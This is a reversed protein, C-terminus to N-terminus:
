NPGRVFVGVKCSNPNLPTCFMVNWTFLCVAAWFLPFVFNLYERLFTLCHLKEYWLSLDWIESVWVLFVGPAGQTQMGSSCREMLSLSGGARNSTWPRLKPLPCQRLAGPGSCSGRGPLVSGCAPGEAIGTISVPFPGADGHPLVSGAGPFFSIVTVVNRMRMRLM